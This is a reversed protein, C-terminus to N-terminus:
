SGGKKFRIRVHPTRSYAIAIRDCHTASMGPEAPITGEFGNAGCAITEELKGLRRCGDM